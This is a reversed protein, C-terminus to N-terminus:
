VNSGGTFMYAVVLLGFVFLYRLHEFYMRSKEEVFADDSFSRHLNIATALLTYTLGIIIPDASVLYSLMAMLVPAVVAHFFATAEAKDYEVSSINLLKEKKM